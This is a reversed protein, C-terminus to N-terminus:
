EVDVLGNRRLTDGAAVVKNLEHSIIAKRTKLEIFNLLYTRVSEWPPTRKLEHLIFEDSECIIPLTSTM